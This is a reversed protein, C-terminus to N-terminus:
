CLFFALGLWSLHCKFGILLKLPAHLSLQKGASNEQIKCVLRSSRFIVEALQQENFHWFFFVFFAFSWCWNRPTRPRQRVAVISRVVKWAHWHHRFIATKATIEGIQPRMQRTFAKLLWCHWNYCSGLTQAVFVIWVAPRKRLAHPGTRNQRPAGAVLVTSTFLRNERKLREVNEDFPKAELMNM